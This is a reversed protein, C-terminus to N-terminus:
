SLDTKRKILKPFYPLKLHKQVSLFKMHTTESMLINVTKEPKHLLKQKKSWSQWCMLCPSAPHQMYFYPTLADLTSPFLRNGDAICRLSFGLLKM